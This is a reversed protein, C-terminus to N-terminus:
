GPNGEVIVAMHEGGKLRHKRVATYADSYYWAKADEVSPFEVL